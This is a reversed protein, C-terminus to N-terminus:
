TGEQQQEASDGTEDLQGEMDLDINGGEPDEVEYFGREFM